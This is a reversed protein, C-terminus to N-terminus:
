EHPDESSTVKQALPVWSPVTFRRFLPMVVTYLIQGLQENCTRLVHVSKAGRKIKLPDPWLLRRVRSLIRSGIAKSPPCTDNHNGTSLSLFLVKGLPFVKYAHYGGLKYFKSNAAGFEACHCLQVPYRLAIYSTSRPQVNCTRPVHVSYAGNKNKLPQLGFWSIHM